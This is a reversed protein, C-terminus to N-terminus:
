LVSVTFLRCIKFLRWWFAAKLEGLSFSLICVFLCVFLCWLYCTLRKTVPIGSTPYWWWFPERQQLWWMHHTYSPFPGLCSQWTPLYSLLNNKLYNAKFCFGISENARNLQEEDLLALHTFLTFTSVGRTQSCDWEQMFNQFLMCIAMNGGRRGGVYNYVM